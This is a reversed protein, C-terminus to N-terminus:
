DSRPAAAEAIQILTERPAGPPLGVLTVDSADDWRALDRDAGDLTTAVALQEFLPDAEPPMVCSGPRPKPNAEIVAQVEDGFGQETLLRAYNDGMAVIYWGIMDAARRRSEEVDAGVALTPGIVTLFNDTSLGAETRYRKLEEIKGPIQDRATFVPIWLDGKEAAIRKTMPGMGAIAISPRHGVELGLRLPRVDSPADPRPTARGGELLNRVEGAMQGLQKAPHEYNVGHFGEALGPTSVGLGLVYRGDSVDLLSATNMAITGASRGWVSLIASMPRIRETKVAVETLLVTADHGWAEPLVFYEYGLRDALVALEVLVERRTEMPTFGIARRSTTM